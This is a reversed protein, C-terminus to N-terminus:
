SLYKHLLTSSIRPMTQVEGGSGAATGVLTTARLSLGDADGITLLFGFMSVDFLSGLGVLTDIWFAGVADALVFCGVVSVRLPLGEGDSTTLLFGFAVVPETSVFAGTCFAGVTDGLVFCGVGSGKLSLGGDSIALLFGVVVVSETGVFFDTCFAGTSDDAAGRELGLLSGTKKGAMSLELGVTDGLGFLEGIKFGTSDGVFKFLGDADFGTNFLPSHLRKERQLICM